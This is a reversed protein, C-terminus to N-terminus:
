KMFVDALLHRIGDELKIKPKWGLKTIKSSDLIKRLTGDPKDTDYRIVGKFGVIEKIVEALKNISLDSGSGVNIHTNRM